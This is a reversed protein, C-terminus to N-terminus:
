NQPRGTREGGSTGTRIGHVQGSALADGRINWDLPGRQQTSEEQGQINGDTAGHLSEKEKKSQWTPEKQAAGEDGDRREDRNMNKTEEGMREKRKNM